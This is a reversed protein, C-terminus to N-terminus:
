GELATAYPRRVPRRERDQDPLYEPRVALDTWHRATRLARYTDVPEPVIAADRLVPLISGDYHSQSEAGTSYLRSCLWGSADPEYRVRLIEGDFTAIGRTPRFAEICRAANEATMPLAVVFAHGDSRWWRWGTRIAERVLTWSPADLTIQEPLGIGDPEERYAARHSCADQLADLMAPAREVRIERWLTPRGDEGLVLRSAEINVSPALDSIRKLFRDAEEDSVDRPLDDLDWALGGGPPFVRRGALVQRLQNAADREDANLGDCIEIWEVVARETDTRGYNAERALGFSPGFHLDLDRTLCPAGLVLAGVVAIARSVM